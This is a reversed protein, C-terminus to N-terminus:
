PTMPGGMIRYYTGSLRLFGMNDALNGISDVSADRIPLGKSMESRLVGSNQQWNLRPSGQDPLRDLM